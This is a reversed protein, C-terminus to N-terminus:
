NQNISIRKSGLYLGQGNQGEPYATVGFQYAGAYSPNRKPKISVTVTNGPEIPQDFMVSVEGPQQEIDGGIAALSVNPGGALSDGLFASSKDEKFTVTDGGSRQQITVSGLSERADKPVEITFQYTAVPSNRSRSTTAARILRPGKGFAVEGNPLEVASVSNTHLSIPLLMGALLAGSALSIKILSKSM